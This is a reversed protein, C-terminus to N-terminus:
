PPARNELYTMSTVKRYPIPCALGLLINISNPSVTSRLLLGAHHLNIHVPGTCHLETTLATCHLATCHLATCHWFVTIRESVRQDGLDGCRYVGRRVGGVMYLATCHLATCHLATCHLATCHLATCHLATCHGGGPTTGRLTTSSYGLASV